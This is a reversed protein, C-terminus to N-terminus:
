RMGYSDTGKFSAYHIDITPINKNPSEAFFTFQFPVIILGMLDGLIHTSALRM